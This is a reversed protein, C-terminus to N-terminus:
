DENLNADKEKAYEAAYKVSDLAETIHDAILAAGEESCEVADDGEISRCVLDRLTDLKMLVEDCLDLAASKNPADRKANFHAMYYGLIKSDNIIYQGLRNLGTIFLAVGDATDLPANFVENKFENIEAATAQAKKTLAELNM